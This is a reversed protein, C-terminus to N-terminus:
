INKIILKQGNKAVKDLTECDDYISNINDVWSQVSNDEVFFINEKNIFNEFDWFGTTKSIIVPTGATMSQMAVSQGSAVLTDALPLFVLRSHNYLKKIDIKFEDEVENNIIIKKLLIQRLM